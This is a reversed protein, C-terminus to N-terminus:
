YVGYTRVANPLQPVNASKVAVESHLAFSVHMTATFLTLLKRKAVHLIGPMVTTQTLLMLPKGKVICLIRSLSTTMTFPM